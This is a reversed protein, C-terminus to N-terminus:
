VERGRWHIGRGILRSVLGWWAALLVFLASFPALPALWGSGSRRAFPLVSATVALWTVPLWAFRLGGRLVGFLVLLPSMLATTYTVTLIARGGAYKLSGAGLRTMGNWMQLPSAYMQVAAAREGRLAMVMYGMRRLREGLALDELPQDRVAEFGGSELYVNRRLLIYQGNMLGKPDSVGAFLGAFATMLVAGDLISAPQQKLFLTVGDLAHDQAFSIARRAGDPQHMTDADTFLLWEGKAALAGTHCAYPKGHWGPLPEELRIVRAGFSEAVAGTGDDSHDDVVIIELPGTYVLENLTPLLRMLNKAENRAPVVVSLSPLHAEDETRRRGDDMRWRLEPMARYNQEARWGLPLALFGLLASPRWDFGMKRLPRQRRKTSRTPSAGLWQRVDPIQPILGAANLARLAPMVIQVFLLVRATRAAGTRQALVLALDFLFKM